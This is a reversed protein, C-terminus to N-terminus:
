GSGTIPFFLASTGGFRAPCEAIRSGARNNQLHSSTDRPSAGAQEHPTKKASLGAIEQKDSLQNRCGNDPSERRNAPQSVSDYRELSLPRHRNNFM